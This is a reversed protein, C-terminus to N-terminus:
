ENSDQKQRGVRNEQRAHCFRGSTRRGLRLRVLPDLVDQPRRLAPRPLRWPGRRRGDAGDADPEGLHDGVLPVVQRRQGLRLFAFRLVTSLM